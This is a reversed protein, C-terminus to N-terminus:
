RNLSVWSFDFPTFPRPTRRRMRALKINAFIGLTHFHRARLHWFDGYLRAFLSSSQPGSLLRFWRHLFSLSPTDLPSILLLNLSSTATCRYHKKWERFTHKPRQQNIWTRRYQTLTESSMILLVVTESKDLGGCVGLCAVSPWAQPCADAGSEGPGMEIDKHTEYKCKEDHFEKHHEFTSPRLSYFSRLCFAAFKIVM